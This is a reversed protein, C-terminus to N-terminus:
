AGKPIRWRGPRRWPKTACSLGLRRRPITSNELHLVADLASRAACVRQVALAAAGIGGPSAADSEWRDFSRGAGRLRVAGRRTSRQSRARPM